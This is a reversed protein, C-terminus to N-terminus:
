QMLILATNNETKVTIFRSAPKDLRTVLDFGFSNWKWVALDAASNSDRDTYSGELVVLEQRGDQDVDFAQFSRVPRALASGAWLEGWHDKKWGILIIHSSFGKADQHTKIYGGYPLVRDVPWPTFPRKVLLTAEPIGDHNLDTWNAQLVTWGAPSTWNGRSCLIEFNGSDQKSSCDRPPQAEVPATAIQWNAPKIGEDTLLFPTMTVPSLGTIAILCIFFRIYGKLLPGPVTM